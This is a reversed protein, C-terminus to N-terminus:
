DGFLRRAQLNARPLSSTLFLQPMPQAACTMTMVVLYRKPPVGLWSGADTGRIADDRDLRRAPFSSVRMM